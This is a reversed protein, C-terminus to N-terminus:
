RQGDIKKVITAELEKGNPRRVYMKSGDLRVPVPDGQGFEGPTYGSSSAPDYEGIYQVGEVRVMIARKPTPPSASEHLIEKEAQMWNEMDHGPTKGSREYILEARHRIAEQLKDPVAPWPRSDSPTSSSRAPM